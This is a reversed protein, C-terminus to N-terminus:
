HLDGIPSIARVRRPLSTSADVVLMESTLPYVFMSLAFLNLEALRCGGAGDVAVSELNATRSAGMHAVVLM